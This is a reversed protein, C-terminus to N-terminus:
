LGRESLLVAAFLAINVVHAMLQFSQESAQHSSRKQISDFILPFGLLILFDPPLVATFKTIPPFTAFVVGLATLALCLNHGRNLPFIGRFRNELFLAGITPFLLFLLNTFRLIFAGNVFAASAVIVTAVRFSTLALIIMPKLRSGLSIQIAMTAIYTFILIQATSSYPARYDALKIALLVLLGGIIIIMRPFTPSELFQKIGTTASQGKDTAEKSALSINLDAAQDAAKISIADKASFNKLSRRDLIGWRVVVFGLQILAIILLFNGLQVLSQLLWVRGSDSPIVLLGAFLPLSKGLFATLRFPNALLCIVSLIRSPASKNETTQM